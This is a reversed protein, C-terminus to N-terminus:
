TLALLWTPLLRQLAANLLGYTGTILALGVAVMLLGSVIEIVRTYRRARNLWSLAQTLGVAAVLFPLALGLAYLLLYPIARAPETFALTIVTGLLPGICPTWGAAFTVGFLLSRLYSPTTQGGSGQFRMTRDLWPLRLVHMTHLGFLVLVMGGLATIWGSARALLGGLLTAPLGFLLVFVLTFGAVFCAGHALTRGRARPAEDSLGAGSLYSLYVPVLPLVCPSLFSLLGAVFILPVSISLM